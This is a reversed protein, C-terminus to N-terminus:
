FEHLRQPINWRVSVSTFSTNKDTALKSGSTTRIVQKLDIFFNTWPQYSLTADVFLVNVKRGQGIENGFDRARFYYPRLVNAGYNLTDLDLGKIYYIAKFCATVRSIPQFRLIGVFEKFNSGLPHALPQSYHAYSTYSSQHAYTFPRVQNFELQIDLNRIGAMDLYEVGIQTAYKNGWWGNQAKINKLLFEDLFLQSYLKVNRIPITKLDFGLCANDPSGANQEISRYFIIPNLYSLDLKTANPYFAPDRGAVIAEFLGFNTSKGLNIGLRHVFLYKDPIFRSGPTGSPGVTPDTKLNAFINTYQVKWFKTNLKVFSYNNGFDSLILSRYGDGMQVRDHGVQINIFRTAAFSIYGRATFFDFGNAKYRKWFGEHPVSNYLGTWQNVYGPVVVQNDAMFTYFGVKKGILGRVEVGRTNTYISSTNDSSKGVTGYGVINAHLDFDKDQYSLLDANRKFFAGWLKKRIGSSDPESYESNVERFYQIHFRDVKSLATNWKQSSDFLAVIDKRQFPKIASHFEGNLAKTKIEARTIWHYIDADLPQFTSQGFTSDLSRFIFLIFLFVFPKSSFFGLM